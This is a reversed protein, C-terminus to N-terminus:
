DQNCSISWGRIQMRLYVKSKLLIMQPSWNRQFQGLRRNGAARARGVARGHEVLFVASSANAGSASGAPKTVLMVGM